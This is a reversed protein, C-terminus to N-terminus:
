DFGCLAGVFFYPKNMSDWGKKRVKNSETGLFVLDMGVMALLSFIIKPISGPVFM